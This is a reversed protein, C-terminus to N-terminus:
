RTAENRINGGIVRGMTCPRRVTPLAGPSGRERENGCPHACIRTCGIRGISGSPLPTLKNRGGRDVEGSPSNEAPRRTGPASHRRSALAIRLAHLLLWPARAVLRGAPFPPFRPAFM